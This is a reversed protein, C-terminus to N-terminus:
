GEGQTTTAEQENGNGDRDRDRDRDREKDRTTGAARNQIHMCRAQALGAACIAVDAADGGLQLHPPSLVSPSVSPSLPLSLPLRHCCPYVCCLRVSAPSSTAFLPISIHSSFCM